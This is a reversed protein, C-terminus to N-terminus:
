EDARSCSASVVCPLVIVRVGDGFLGECRSIEDGQVVGVLLRGSFDDVGYGIFGEALVGVNDRDGSSAIDEQGVADLPIPIQHVVYRKLLSRM